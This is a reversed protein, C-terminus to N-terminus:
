AKALQWANEAFVPLLAIMDRANASAATGRIARGKIGHIIAAFRFM